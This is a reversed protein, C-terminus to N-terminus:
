LIANKFKMADFRPERSLKEIFISVVREMDDPDTVIGEFRLQLIAEAIMEYHKKTMTKTGTTAIPVISGFAQGSLDPFPSSAGRM